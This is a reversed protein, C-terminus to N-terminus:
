GFRLGLGGVAPSAYVSRNHSTGGRKYIKIKNMMLIMVKKM